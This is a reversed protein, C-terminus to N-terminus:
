NKVKLSWDFVFESVVVGEENIGKSSLKITQGEGTQISHQIANKIEDRTGEEIAPVGSSGLEFGTWALWILEDLKELKTSEILTSPNSLM